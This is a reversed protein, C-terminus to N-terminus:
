EPFLILFTGTVRCNFLWGILAATQLQETLRFNNQINFFFTIKRFIVGNDKGYLKM